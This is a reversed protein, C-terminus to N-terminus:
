PIDIRARDGVLDLVQRIMGLPDPEPLRDLRAAVPLRECGVLADAEQLRESAHFAELMVKAAREEPLLLERELAEVRHHRHEVLRDFDGGARAGVLDHDSHRVAAAEVHEHM